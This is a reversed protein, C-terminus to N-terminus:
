WRLARPVVRRRGVHLGVVHDGALNGPDEVANRMWTLEPVVGPGFTRVLLRTANVVPALDGDVLLAADREDREAGSAEVEVAAITGAVIEERVAEHREVFVRANRASGTPM